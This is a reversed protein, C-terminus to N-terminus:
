AEFFSDFGEMDWARRSALLRRLLLREVLRRLLLERTPESAECISDDIIM